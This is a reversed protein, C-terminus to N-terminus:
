EPPNHNRNGPPRSRPWLGQLPWRGFPARRTQEVRVAASLVVPTRWVGLPHKYRNQFARSTRQHGGGRVGFEEDDARLFSDALEGRTMTRPRRCLPAPQDALAPDWCPIRPAASPRTSERCNHRNGSVATTARRLSRGVSPVLVVNRLLDCVKRRRPQAASATPWPEVRHEFV